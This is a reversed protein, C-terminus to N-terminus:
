NDCWKINMEEGGSRFECLVTGRDGGYYWDWRKAPKRDRWEEEETHKNEKEDKGGRGAVRQM